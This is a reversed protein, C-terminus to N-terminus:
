AHCHYSGIYDLCTQRDSYPIKEGAIEMYEEAGKGCLVIVDGPRAETLAFRVAKARDPVTFVQKVVGAKIQRIIEEPDESRPNDSTLVVVDSLESAIKGMIPRKSRDRDGGCGFVCYLNRTCLRRACTLVRKLGDPTHAYDIIIKARWNIVNFRGEVDNLALTARELEERTLGLLKGVTLAALLNSVNYEGYLPSHIYMVDDFINAVFDTGLSFEVNVAFADSPHFIGYSVSCIDNNNIIERGVPDDANVVACKINKSTFYSMKVNKYEEMTKFFDLHDQSFNTFVCLDCKIGYLKEFYIAHASIECFVYQVNNGAAEALYAFFEPSDPTTRDIKYRESGIFVGLTGIVATRCGCYSFIDGLIKTTTTKGNTGVVGVISLKKDPYDYFARSMVAVARRVNKVTLCPVNEYTKEGCVLCAGNKMADEIYKEAEDSSVFFIYGPRVKKSHQALGSVPVDKKFNSGTIVIDGTLESLYKM